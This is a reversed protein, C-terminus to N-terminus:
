WKVRIFVVFTSERCNVAPFIEPEYLLAREQALRHLDLGGRLTRSSSVTIIKGPMDEYDRNVRKLAPHGEMVILSVM